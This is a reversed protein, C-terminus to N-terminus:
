DLKIGIAGLQSQFIAASTERRQNGVTTYFRLEAKQGGCTWVATNNRTPKSPGGTCHKALLALARKPAFSWKAMVPTANTGIEYEPNNLPKLGHAIQGYLAQVLSVRDMGMMMAQRFWPIRLLPNPNGKPGFNLDWHEQIFGPVSSYTLGKQDLLQALAVQPSPSIADL